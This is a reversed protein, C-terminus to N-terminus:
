LNWLGNEHHRKKEGFPRLCELNSLSYFLRNSSDFILTFLHYFLLCLLCLCVQGFVFLPFSLLVNVLLRNQTQFKHYILHTTLPLSVGISSCYFKADREKFCHTSIHCKRPRHARGHVCYHDHM